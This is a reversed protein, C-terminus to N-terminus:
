DARIEVPYYNWDWPVRRVYMEYMGPALRSLELRVTFATTGERIAADSSASVVPAGDRRLQFEYAGAKSGVPLQVTLEVTRRAIVIPKREGDKGSRTMSPIDVTQRVFAVEANQPRKSFFSGQRAVVFAVAVIVIGAVAAMWRLRTRRMAAERRRDEDFALFARYCESCHTVHHWHPDAEVALDLPRAALEALVADGPCGKREPNPYDRLISDQLQKKLRDFRAEPSQDPPM